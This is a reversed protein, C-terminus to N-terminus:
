VLALAAVRVLLQGSLPVPTPLEVLSLPTAIKQLQMAHM